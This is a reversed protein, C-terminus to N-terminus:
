LGSKIRAAIESAMRGSLVPSISHGATPDCQSWSFPWVYLTRKCVFTLEVLALNMGVTTYTLSPPTVYLRGSLRQAPLPM